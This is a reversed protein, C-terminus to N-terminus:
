RPTTTPVEFPFTEGARSGSGVSRIANGDWSHGLPERQPNSSRNRSSVGDARLREEHIPEM